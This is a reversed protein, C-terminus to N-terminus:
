HDDIVYLLTLGQGSWTVQVWNYDSTINWKKINIKKMKNILSNQGLSFM